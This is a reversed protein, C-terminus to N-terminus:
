TINNSASFFHTVIQLEIEDASFLNCDNITQSYIHVKLKILHIFESSISLAASVFCFFEIKATPQNLSDSM